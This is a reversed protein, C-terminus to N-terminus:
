IIILDLANRPETTKNQLFKISGQDVNVNDNTVNKSSNNINTEYFNNDVTTKLLNKFFLNQELEFSRLEKVLEASRNILM